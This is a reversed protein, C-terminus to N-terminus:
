TVYVTKKKKKTMPIIAATIEQIDDEDDIDCQEALHKIDDQQEDVNLKLENNVDIAKENNVKM